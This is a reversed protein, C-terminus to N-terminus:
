SHDSKKACRPCTKGSPPVWDSWFLKPSKGCLAPACEPLVGSGNDAILHIVTGHSDGGSRCAGAMTAKILRDTM